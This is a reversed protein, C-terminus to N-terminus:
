FLRDLSVDPLRAMLQIRVRVLLNATCYWLWHAIRKVPRWSMCSTIAPSSWAEREIMLFIINGYIPYLSNFSTYFEMM